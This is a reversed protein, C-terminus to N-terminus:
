GKVFRAPAALRNARAQKAVEAEAAPEFGHFAGSADPADYRHHAL